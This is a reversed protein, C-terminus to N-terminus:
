KKELVHFNNDRVHDAISNFVVDGNFSKKHYDVFLDSITKSGNNLLEIIWSKKLLDSNEALNIDSFGNEEYIKMQLILELKDCCSAFKSDNTEKKNFERTLNMYEDKKILDKLIYEVALEGKANKEERTINDFPTLDGIIVEELEHIVLMKIVRDINIDFEYESELAIALICTGYIHEAVSELREKSVHWTKAGERIKDKLSTALVYFNLVNDIRSM